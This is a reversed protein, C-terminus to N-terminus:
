ERFGLEEIIGEIGKFDEPGVNLLEFGTDHFDSNVSKDNRVSKANFHMYERDTMESQLIMKLNYTKNLEIPTDSMILIGQTSIDVLYGILADTQDDLVRLYYILHRRQLRRKELM